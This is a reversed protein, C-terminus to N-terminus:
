FVEVLEKKNSFVLPQKLVTLIRKKKTLLCKITFPLPCHLKQKVIGKRMLDMVGLAENVMFRRFGRIEVQQRRLVM